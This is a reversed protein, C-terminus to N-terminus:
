RITFLSVGKPRLYLLPKGNADAPVLQSLSSFPLDGHRFARESQDHVADGSPHALVLM